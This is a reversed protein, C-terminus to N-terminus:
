RLPAPLRFVPSKAVKRTNQILNGDTALANQEHASAGDGLSHRRGKATRPQGHTSRSRMQQAMGQGSMQQLPPDTEFGNGVQKPM